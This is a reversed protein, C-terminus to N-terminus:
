YSQQFDYKHQVRRMQKRQRKWNEEDLNDADFRNQEELKKLDPAKYLASNMNLWDANGQLIRRAEAAQGQDRLKVALRNQENSVLEVAKVMVDRDVFRGAEAGSAVFRVRAAASQEEATKTELDRYRVQADCLTREEGAEGAPVEVEVMVFKEQRAVVQNLQTTVQDGVIEAERGLVRIPRVGPQCVLRVDVEQAVVSLVEGFELDFFRVLDAPQEIFMHNGDASRALGQMLDENYDLGLGLTTITIGMRSLTGGLSVLEGPSSPGVNALGDSLLVLRNVKNPDLFKRLEDAGKSVGAFLATNGAPTLRAIGDLIPQKDAAKTAPVIVRVSTDYAIISVIDDPGLRDVAMMAAEKAKRLKDGSMSGSKDLVIAVNVPVRDTSRVAEGILGVKVFATSKKGAEMVPTGLRVDLKVQKAQAGVSGLVVAMWMWFRM